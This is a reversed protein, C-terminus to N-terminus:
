KTKDKREIRKIRMKLYDIFVGCEASAGEVGPREWSCCYMKAHSWSEKRKTFVRLMRKFTQLKIKDAETM